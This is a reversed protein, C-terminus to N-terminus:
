ILIICYRLPHSLSSVIFSYTKFLCHHHFLFIKFSRVLLFTGIVRSTAYKDTTKKGLCVRDYMTFFGLTLILLLGCLVPLLLTGFFKYEYDFEPLICEPAVIDLDFNFFSLLRFISKIAAPWEVDVSAFIALVQFYDVGISIFALNFNKKDLIYCGISVAIIGTYTFHLFM